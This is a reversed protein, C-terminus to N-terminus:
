YENRSYASQHTVYPLDSANLKQIDFSDIRYDTQNCPDNNRISITKVWYNIEDRSCYVTLGIIGILLLLKIKKPTKRIRQLM